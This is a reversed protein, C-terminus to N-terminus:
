VNRKKGSVIALPGQIFLIILFSYFNLHYMEFLYATLSLTIIVVAAILSIKAFVNAEKWSIFHDSIKM